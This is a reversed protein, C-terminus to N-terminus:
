VLEECIMPRSLPHACVLLGAQHEIIVWLPPILPPSPLSLLCLIYLYNRSEYQQIASSLLM